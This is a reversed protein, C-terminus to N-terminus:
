ALRWLACLKEDKDHDCFLHLKQWDAPAVARLKMTAMQTCDNRCGGTRPPKVRRYNAGGGRLENSNSRKASAVKAGIRQNQQDHHQGPWEKEKMEFCAFEVADDLFHAVRYINRV